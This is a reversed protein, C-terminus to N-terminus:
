KFDQLKQLIQYWKSGMEGEQFKRPNEQCWFRRSRKGKNKRIDLVQYMVPM